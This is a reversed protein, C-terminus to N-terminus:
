VLTGWSTSLPTQFCLQPAQAPAGESFCAAKRGRRRQALPKGEYSREPLKGWIRFRDATSQERHEPTELVMELCSAKSTVSWSIHNPEWLIHTVYSRSFIANIRIMIHSVPCHCSFWVDDINSQGHIDCSHGKWWQWKVRSDSMKDFVQANPFFALVLPLVAPGRLPIALSSSPALLASRVVSALFPFLGHPHLWPFLWTGWTSGLNQGQRVNQLPHTNVDLQLIFGNATMCIKKLFLGSVSINYYNWNVPM